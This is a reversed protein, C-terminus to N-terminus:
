ICHRWVPKSTERLGRRVCRVAHCLQTERFSLVTKKYKMLTTQYSATKSDNPCKSEVKVKLGLGCAHWGLTFDICYTCRQERGMLCRWRNMQEDYRCLLVFWRWWKWQYCKKNLSSLIINKILSVYVLASIHSSTSVWQRICDPIQLQAVPVFEALEQLSHIFRM